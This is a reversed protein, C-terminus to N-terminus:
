DLPPGPIFPNTKSAYHQYGPLIGRLHTELLPISVQTLLYTLLLPSIVSSYGRSTTLAILFFGWWQMVEGFYNPHRSYRWPGKDLVKSANEPANRFKVLHIDSIAELVFGALWTAAGLLDLWTLYDPTGAAQARLLPLSILSMVVGQLWFIRFLSAKKGDAGMEDHWARYRPDQGNARYRLYLHITLRMGWAITLITILIRRPLAGDTLAFYISMLLILGPGWFIDVISCDDLQLSIWWLGTMLLLAVALGILYITGITM